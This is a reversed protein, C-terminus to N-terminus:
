RTFISTVGSVMVGLSGNAFNKSGTGAVNHEAPRSTKTEAPPINGGCLLSQWRSM